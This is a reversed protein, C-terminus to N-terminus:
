VIETQHIVITAFPVLFCAYDFIIKLAVIEVIWKL